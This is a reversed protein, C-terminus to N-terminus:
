QRGCVSCPLFLPEVRYVYVHMCVVVGLRMRCDVRVVDAHM